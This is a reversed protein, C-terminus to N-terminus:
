PATKLKKKIRKSIQSDPANELASAYAARAEAAHKQSAEIDGIQEYISANKASLRQAERLQELASAPDGTKQLLGALALHAALYDPKAALITRYEAIAQAPDPLAGALSLRSPLYDPSRKLNDRWLDIAEPLREKKETLLLALNHRAALMGPNKELAQRYFEEAERAKGTSAKLSGL